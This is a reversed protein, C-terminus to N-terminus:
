GLRINSSIKNLLRNATTVMSSGADALRTTVSAAAARASALATEAVNGGNKDEPPVPPKAAPKTLPKATAAALSTPAPKPADPDITPPKNVKPSATNPQTLAGNWALPPVPLGAFAHPKPTPKTGEDGHDHNNGTVVVTEIKQGAFQKMPDERVGDKNRLEYHTHVGDAKGTKGMVALQQGQDVKQGIKVSVSDNHAFFHRKQNIDLMEVVLGYSDSFRVDIVVGPMIAKIPVKKGPTDSAIDVGQHMRRDGYLPHTRMGFESMRRMNEVPEIPEYHKGQAEAEARMQAVDRVAQALTGANIRKAAPTRYEKYQVEERQRRTTDYETRANVGDEKTKADEFDLDEDGDFLNKLFSLIAKVFGAIPSDNNEGSFIKGFGNILSALFSKDEEEQKKKKKAIDQSDAM